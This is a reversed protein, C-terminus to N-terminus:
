IASVKEEKKEYLLFKILVPLKEFFIAVKASGNIFRKIVGFITTSLLIKEKSSGITIAIM